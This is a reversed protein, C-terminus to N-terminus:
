LQPRSTLPFSGPSSPHFSNDLSACASFGETPSPLCTCPVWFLVLTAVVCITSLLQLFPWITHIMTLPTQNKKKKQQIFACCSPASGGGHMTRLSGHTGCVARRPAQSGRLLELAGGGAKGRLGLPLNPKGPGVWPSPQSGRRVGLRCCAVM